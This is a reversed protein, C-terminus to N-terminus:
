ESWILTGNCQPCESCRAELIAGCHYCFLEHSATREGPEQRSEWDAIVERARDADKEAVWIPCTAVQYPVKGSVAHVATSAIRAHIGADVLMNLIFQAQTPNWAAYVQQPESNM